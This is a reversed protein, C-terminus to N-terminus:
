RLEVKGSVEVSITSKGAQWEPAAVGAGLAPAAKMMMARVPVPAGGRDNLSLERIEMHPKDLAKAVERARLRLDSIAAAILRSETAQRASDSVSFGVNEIQLYSQLRGVLESFEPTPKGNLRLDGRGQWGSIRGNSEYHPWTRVQGGSVDIGKVQNAENLARKLTRNLSDALRASNANQEQAYLVVSIQDNDVEQQAQGTVTLQTPTAATAMPSAASFCLLAVLGLRNLSRMTMDHYLATSDFYSM